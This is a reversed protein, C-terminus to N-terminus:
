LIAGLLLMVLRVITLTGAAINVLLSFAALVVLYLQPVRLEARAGAPDDLLAAGSVVEIV